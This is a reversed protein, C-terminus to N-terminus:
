AKIGTVINRQPNTPSPSLILEILDGTKADLSNFAEPTCNIERSEVGKKRISAKESNYDQSPVGYIINCINFANGAKSTGSGNTAGIYVVKM